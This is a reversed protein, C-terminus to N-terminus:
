VLTETEVAIEATQLQKELARLATVHQAVDVSWASLRSDAAGVSDRLTTVVRSLSGAARGATSSLAPAPRHRPSVHVASAETTQQPAPQSQCRPAASSPRNPAARAPPPALTTASASAM